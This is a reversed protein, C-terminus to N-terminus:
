LYDNVNFTMSNHKSNSFYNINIFVLGSDILYNCIKYLLDDSNEIIVINDNIFKIIETNYNNESMSCLNNFIFNSLFKVIIVNNELDTYENFKFLLLLVCCKYHFDDKEEDFVGDGIVDFLNKWLNILDDDNNEKIYKEFINEHKKFLNIM